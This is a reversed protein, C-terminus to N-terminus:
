HWKHNQTMTSDSWIIWKTTTRRDFNFAHVRACVCELGPKEPGKKWVRGYNIVGGLGWGVRVIDYPMKSSTNEIPSHSAVPPGARIRFARAFQPSPFNVKIFFNCCCHWMIPLPTPIAWHNSRQVRSQFTRPETLQCNESVHPVVLWQLPQLFSTLWHKSNSVRERMCMCVSEWVCVACVCVCVSEREREHVCVCERVCVASERERERMCVCVCERVNCVCVCVSMYIYVCLRVCVCVCVCVTVIVACLLFAFLYAM